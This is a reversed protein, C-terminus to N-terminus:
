CKGRPKYLLTLINKNGERRYAVKDVMKHVLFIGLGGLKRDCVNAEIDPCTETSCDFPIGTDIIEILSSDSGVKCNVEIDGTGAPYAYRCINVLVEEVALEIRRLEAPSYGQKGACESIFSILKELNDLVAPLRLYPMAIM